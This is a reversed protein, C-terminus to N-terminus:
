GRAKLKRLQERLENTYVNDLLLKRSLTQVPAPVHPSSALGALLPQAAPPALVRARLGQEDVRNLFVDDLVVAQSDGRGEVFLRQM